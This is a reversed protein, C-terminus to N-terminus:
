TTVEPQFYYSPYLMCSLPASVPKASILSNNSLSTFACFSLKFFSRPNMCAGALWCFPLTCYVHSWSFCYVCLFTILFHKIPHMHFVFSFSKSFSQTLSEHYLLPVIQKTFSHISALPTTKEHERVPAMCSAIAYSM